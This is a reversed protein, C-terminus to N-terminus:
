GVGEGAPVSALAAARLAAAEARHCLLLHLVKEAVGIREGVEEGREEAAPAARRRPRASRASAAPGARSAIDLVFQIQREVLRIVAGGLPEREAVASA